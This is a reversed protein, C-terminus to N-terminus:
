LMRSLLNALNEIEPALLGVQSLIQGPYRLAEALEQAFPLSLIADGHLQRDV